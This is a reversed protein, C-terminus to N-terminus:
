IHDPRELSRQDYSRETTSRLTKRDVV